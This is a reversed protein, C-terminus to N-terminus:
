AHRRRRADIIDGVLQYLNTEKGGRLDDMQYFDVTAELLHVDETLTARDTDPTAGAIEAKKRVLLYGAFQGLADEHARHRTLNRAEFYLPDDDLEAIRAIRQSRTLPLLPDREPKGRTGEPTGRVFMNTEVEAARREFRKNQELVALELPDIPRGAQIERGVGPHLLAHSGGLYAFLEQAILRRIQDYNYRPSGDPLRQGEYAEFVPRSLQTFLLGDSFLPGSADQMGMGHTLDRFYKDLDNLGDHYKVGFAGQSSSAALIHSLDHWDHIEDPTDFSTAPDTDLFHGPKVVLTDQDYGQIATRPISRKSTRVQRGQEADFGHVYGHLAYNAIPAVGGHADIFSGIADIVDANRRVFDLGEAAEKRSVNYIANYKSGKVAWLWAQQRDATVLSDSGLGERQAFRAVGKMIHPVVEGTIREAHQEIDKSPVFAPRNESFPLRMLSPAIQATIEHPAVALFQGRPDVPAVGIKQENQAPM